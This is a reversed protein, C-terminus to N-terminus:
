EHSGLQYAAYITPGDLLDNLKSEIEKRSSSNKYRDWDEKKEWMSVILVENPDDCGRLMESTIYGKSGLVNTRAQIMMESAKQFKGDKIKRKIFIKVTM